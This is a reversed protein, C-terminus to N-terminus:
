GLVVALWLYIFLCRFLTFCKYAVEIGGVLFTRLSSILKSVDDKTLLLRVTFLSARGGVESLKRCCMLWPWVCLQLFLRSAKRSSGDGSPRPHYFSSSSSFGFSIDLSGAGVLRNSSVVHVQLFFSHLLLQEQFTPREHVSAQM